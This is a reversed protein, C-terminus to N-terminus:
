NPRLVISRVSVGDRSTLRCWYVGPLLGSPQFAIEYVGATRDESSILSAIPRGLADHIDLSVPTSSTLRYQITTSAFFPNPYAVISSSLGEQPSKMDSILRRWVGGGQTGAFLYHGQVSLSVIRLNWLGQSVNTWTKATDTSLFVGDFKAVFLNGDSIAQPCCPSQNHNLAHAWTEARDTSRYVGYGTYALLTQGLVSLSQIGAPCNTRSWTLGGDDSRFIAWGCADGLFITSGMIAIGGIGCNQAISDLGTALTIWTRGSDSSRFVEHGSAEYMIGNSTIFKGYKWKASRVVWSAGHDSSCVLGAGTTAFIEPGLTFVQNAGLSFGSATNEWTEGENSSYFIPASKPYLLIDGDVALLGDPLSLLNNTTAGTMTLELWSFGQDTSRFLGDNTAALLYPGDSTVLHVDKGNLTSDTQKWSKGSDTSRYLGVGYATAYLDSGIVTIGTITLQSPISELRRWGSQTSELLSNDAVGFVETGLEARAYFPKAYVSDWTVGLNSSTYTGGSSILNHPPYPDFQDLLSVLITNDFIAVFNILNTKARPRASAAWTLGDDMSYRISDSCGAVIRRASVSLAQVKKLTTSDWSLGDNSSRLLSGNAVAYVTAGNSNLSSVGYVTDIRIWRIGHDHSRFIGNNAAFISAGCVTITTTNGGPPGNTPVWQAPSSLPLSLLTILCFQFLTEKM